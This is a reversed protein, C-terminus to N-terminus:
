LANGLTRNTSLVSALAKLHGLNETDRLAVLHQYVVSYAQSTESHAKHVVLYYPDVQINAKNMTDIYFYIGNASASHFLVKQNAVNICSELFQRELFYHGYKGLDIQRRALQRFIAPAEREFDKSNKFSLFEEGMKQINQSFYNYEGAM